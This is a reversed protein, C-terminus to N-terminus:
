FEWLKAAMFRQKKKDHGIIYNNHVVVMNELKHSQRWVQNWFLSGAVFQEFPLPKINMTNNTSYKRKILSNLVDQDLLRDPIKTLIFNWEDVFTRAIDTPKIFMFGACLAHWESHKATPPDSQIWLDYPGTLYPFPSQLWVTDVDSSLVTYGFSLLYQIYGSRRSMMGNFEKSNYDFTKPQKFDVLVNNTSNGLFIQLPLMPALAKFVQMDEAVVVFNTIGCNRSAYLRWNNFFDMYGYNVTLLIITKPAVSLSPLMHEVNGFFLPTKIKLHEDEPTPIQLSPLPLRQTKEQFYLQPHQVFVKAGKMQTKTRYFLGGAVLVITFLTM